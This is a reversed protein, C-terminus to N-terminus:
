GNIKGLINNGIIELSYNHELLFNSIEDKKSINNDFFEVFIVPNFDKITKEAGKLIDLDMGEADIKLLDIKPIQFGEVFSDIKYLDIITSESKNKITNNKLSFTGFDAPENYDPELFQIRGNDNGLAMHYPYVNFLNNVALNGCLIQFVLRQPEFSYVKGKPFYNSLWTTFTGINAGVDFIIPTKNNALANICANAEVTCVNGHDLLFRGNGVLNENYDFRNVIMLGQDTAVLINRRVKDSVYYM